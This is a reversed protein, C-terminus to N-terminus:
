ISPSGDATTSITTDDDPPGTVEDSTPLDLHVVIRERTSGPPHCAFLTATSEFTQDIIYMADPQVITTDRVTYVFMGDSTTLLVEDGPELQDIDRFVRNHSTRHGAIVSNGVQGPM